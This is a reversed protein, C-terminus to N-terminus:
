DEEAALTGRAIWRSDQQLPLSDYSLALVDSGASGLRVIGDNAVLTVAVSKGSNANIGSDVIVDPAAFYADEIGTVSVTVTAVQSVGVLDTVTYTFSDSVGDGDGLQQLARGNLPNYSFTGDPNVSVIADLASREDFATVSMATGVDNSLV